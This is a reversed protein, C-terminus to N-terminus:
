HFQDPHLVLRKAKRALERAEADEPEKSKRKKGRKAM